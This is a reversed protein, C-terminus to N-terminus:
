EIQAATGTKIVRTLVLSISHAKVNRRKQSFFHVKLRKTIYFQSSISDKYIFFDQFLEPIRNEWEWVFETKVSHIAQQRHTIKDNFQKTGM